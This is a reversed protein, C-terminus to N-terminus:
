TKAPTKAKLLSRAVRHGQPTLAVRELRGAPGKGLILLEAESLRYLTRLVRLRGANSKTLEGFWGPTYIPGYERDFEDLRVSWRQWAPPRPRDRVADCQRKVEMLVVKDLEQRDV